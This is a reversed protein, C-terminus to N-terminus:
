GIHSEMTEKFSLEQSINRQRKLVLTMIGIAMRKERKKLGHTHILGDTKEQRKM